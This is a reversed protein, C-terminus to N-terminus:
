VRYYGTLDVILRSSGSQGGQYIGITGNSVGVTTGVASTQGAGGWAVNSTAPRQHAAPWVTLYGAGQTGTVTVNIHAAHVGQTLPVPLTLSQQVGTEITRDLVRRPAIPVFEGPAPHYTMRVGILVDGKDLLCTLYTAQGPITDVPLSHTGTVVAPTGDVAVGRATVSRTQLTVTGGDVPRVFFTATANTAEEPVDVRVYFREPYNVVTIGRVTGDGVPVDVWAWPIDTMPRFDSASISAYV